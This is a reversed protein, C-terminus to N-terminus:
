PNEQSRVEASVSKGPEESRDTVGKEVFILEKCGKEFVQGGWVGNKAEAVDELGKTQHLQCIWAEALVGDFCLLPSPKECATEM